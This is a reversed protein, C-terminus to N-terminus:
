NVKIRALINGFLESENILEEFIDDYVRLRRQLSTLENTGLENVEKLKKLEKLYLLFLSFLFCFIRMTVKHNYDNNVNKLRRELNEVLDSTHLNARTTLLDKQVYSKEFKSFNNYKDSKSTGNLPSKLFMLAMEKDSIARQYGLQHTAQRESQKLSNEEKASLSPLKLENIENDILSKSNSQCPSSKEENTSLMKKSLKNCKALPVLKNGISFEALTECMNAIELNNLSESSTKGLKHKNPTRASLAAADGREAMTSKALCRSSANTAASTWPQHMRQEAPKWLHSENLHGSTLAKIDASQESIIYNSIKSLSSKSQSSMKKESRYRARLCVCAYV